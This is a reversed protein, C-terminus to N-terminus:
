KANKPVEVNNFAESVGKFSKALNRQMEAFGDILKKMSERMQEPEVENGNPLVFVLQDDDKYRKGVLVNDENYYRIVDGDDVSEIATEYEGSM